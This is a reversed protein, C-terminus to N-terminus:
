RSNRGQPAASKELGNVKDKLISVEGALQSISEQNSTVVGLTNGISNLPVKTQIVEIKRNLDAVQQKLQANEGLAKELDRELKDISSQLEVHRTDSKAHSVQLSSVRSHATCIFIVAVVLLLAFFGAVAGFMQVPTIRISEFTISSRKLVSEKEEAEGQEEPLIEPASQEGANEVEEATITPVADDAKEADGADDAAVYQPEKVAKANLGLFLTKCETCRFYRGLSDADVEYHMGCSPCAIKM